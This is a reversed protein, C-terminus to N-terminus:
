KKSEALKRKQYIPNSSYTLFPLNKRMSNKVYQTKASERYGQIAENLTENLLMDSWDKHYPAAEVEHADDNELLLYRYNVLTEEAERYLTEIREQEAKSM